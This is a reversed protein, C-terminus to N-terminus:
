FRIGILAPYYERFETITEKAGHLIVVHQQVTLFGYRVAMGAVLVRGGARPEYPSQSSYTSGNASASALGAGLFPEVYLKEAIRAEIDVGFALANVAHKVERPRGSGDYQDMTRGLRWGLLRWGSIDGATRRVGAFLASAPPAFGSGSLEQGFAIEVSWPRRLLEETSQGRAVSALAVLAAVSLRTRM